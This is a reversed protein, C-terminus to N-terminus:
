SSCEDCMYNSLQLAQATTMKVCGPHFWKKCGDCQMMLCDPNYPMECKCYVPVRSPTVEKTGVKYEFRSYYDGAGINELKTYDLFSHVICKGEMTNASQTEYHDSLLLEKAGHFQRRGFSAEEPRYYWRLKVMLDGEMDTELKDVLAVSPRKDPQSPKILVCDGARVIEGSGSIKYFEPNRKRRRINSM